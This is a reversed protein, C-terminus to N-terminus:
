SRRWWRQVTDTLDFFFYGGYGMRQVAQDNILRGRLLNWDERPWTVVAVIMMGVLWIGLAAKRM